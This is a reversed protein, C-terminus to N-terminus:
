PPPADEVVASPSIRSPSLSPFPMRTLESLREKTPPAALLTEIIRDKQTWLANVWPQFVARFEDDNFYDGLMEPPVPLVRVVVRVDSVEGCLFQWFSRAGEPYAITVDVFGTLYEGMAGLVFAIGGARPKLLHNFPSGQERHKAPTFRTGELFNIISVPVEKFKECAKRTTELDRGKLHPHKELFDRSYRKMFPFDLAWWAQGLLPFWFLEKKLFFKLFPIRGHFLNQLVLIDVWTQHNAVVLYWQRSRLPELGAVHWRINCFFAQTMNNVRVWGGACGNVVVGCWNRFAPIPVVAKLIAFVFLPICWFLTNLTYVLLSLTGRLHPVVTNLM